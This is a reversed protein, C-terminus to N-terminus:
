SFDAAAHTLRRAEGAPPLATNLRRRLLLRAPPPWRWPRATGPDLFPTFRAGGREIFARAARVLLLRPCFPKASTMYRTLDEVAYAGFELPQQLLVIAVASRDRRPRITNQDLVIPVAAIMAVVAAAPQM